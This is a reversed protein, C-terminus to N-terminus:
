EYQNFRVFLDTIRVDVRTIKAPDAIVTELLPQIASIPNEMGDSSAYAMGLMNEAIADPEMAEFQRGIVDLYNKYPLAVPLGRKFLDTMILNDKGLFNCFQQYMAIRQAQYIVEDESADNENQTELADRLTGIYSPLVDDFWTMMDDEDEETVIALMEALKEIENVDSNMIDLLHQPNEYHELAMLGRMLNTKQHLTVGETTHIGRQHILDDMVRVTMNSLLQISDGLDIVDNMQLLEVIEDEYYPLYMADFVKHAEDILDVFEPPAAEVLYARLIDLM